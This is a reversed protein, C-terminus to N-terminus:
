VHDFLARAAIHSADDWLQRRYGCCPPPHLHRADEKEMVSMKQNMLIRFNFYIM